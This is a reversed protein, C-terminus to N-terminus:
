RGNVFSLDGYSKGQTDQMCANQILLYMKAITFKEFNWDRETVETIWLRDPELLSKLIVQTRM